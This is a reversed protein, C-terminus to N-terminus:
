LTLGRRRRWIGNHKVWAGGGIEHPTPQFHDRRSRIYSYHARNSNMPQKRCDWHAKVAMQSYLIMKCSYDWWRRRYRSATM